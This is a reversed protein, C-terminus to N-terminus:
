QGVPRTSLGRARIVLSRGLAIVGGLLAGLMAGGIGTLILNRASRASGEPPDVVTLVPTNRIEDLRAREFSQALAVYVQQRLDVQRQLREQELTLLPAGAFSRNAGTFRALADEAERLERGASELRTQLFAREAGAQSQRKRVNFEGVLDLLRRNLAVAMEPWPSLTRLGIVGAKTDLSVATQQDLLRVARRVAKPDTEAGFGLLAPLTGRLTDGDALRVEYHTTAAERLIEQSKLLRAYFEISEGRSGGIQVGLQSALGALGSPTADGVQPVFAALASYQPGRLLAAGLATVLGVGAAALVLPLATLAGQWLSRLRDLEADTLM